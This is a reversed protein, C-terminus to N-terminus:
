VKDPIVRRMDPFKGDISECEQSIVGDTIRLKFPTETGEIAIDLQPPDKPGYRFNELVERPIIVAQPLHEFKGDVRYMGARHGDTAMLRAGRNGSEIALGNLYYRIDKKAAFLLMAKVINKEIIINM